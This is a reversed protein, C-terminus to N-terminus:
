AYTPVPTILKLPNGCYELILSWVDDRKLFDVPAHHSRSSIILGSQEGVHETHVLIEASCTESAAPFPPNCQQTWERQNM